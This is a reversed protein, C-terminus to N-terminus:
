PFDGELMQHGRLVGRRKRFRSRYVGPFYRKVEVGDLQREGAGVEWSASDWAIIELWGCGLEWGIPITCVFVVGGSYTDGGRDFIKSGGTLPSAVNYTGTAIEGFSIKFIM